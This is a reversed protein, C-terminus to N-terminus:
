RTLLITGSVTATITGKGPEVPLPADAAAMEAVKARMMM